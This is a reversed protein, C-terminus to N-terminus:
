EVLFRYAARVTYVKDKIPELCVVSDNMFAVLEILDESTENSSWYYTSVFPEGGNDTIIKNFKAVGPSDFEHTGETIADWMLNLEMYSPMFWGEGHAVCWQAAPYKDPSTGFRLMDQTNWDGRQSGCNCYVYETSWQLDEEDLSFVYCYTDYGVINEYSEDYKPFEKFAYVVGKSGACEIVDGVEYDSIVAPNYATVTVINSEIDNYTAQFKYEGITTTSFTNGTLSEKTQTNTITCENTVSEEGYMVTFTAIEQGNAKIRTVDAKLTLKKDEPKEEKVANVEVENSKVGEYEAVFRFSGAVNSVFTNGELAINYTLNKITYGENVVEGDVTVTFTATDTEDAKIENKDVSLGVSTQPQEGTATAVIRKTESTTTGYIGRFEYTGAAMTTFKNGAIISNDALNVIEAESTRDKGDVIVTFTVVDSGNAVITEKDANLVVIPTTQEDGGEPQQECAAFGALLVM